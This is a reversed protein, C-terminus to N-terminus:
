QREGAVASRRETEVFAVFDSPRGQPHAEYFGVERLTEEGMMQYIIRQGQRVQASGPQEACDGFIYATIAITVVVGIFHSASINRLGGM